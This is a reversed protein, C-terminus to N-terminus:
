DRKQESQMAKTVIHVLKIIYSSIYIYLDSGTAIQRQTERNQTQKDTQRQREKTHTHTHRSYIQPDILVNEMVRERTERLGMGTKRDKSGRAVRCVLNKSEVGLFM